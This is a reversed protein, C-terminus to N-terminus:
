RLYGRRRRGRGRVGGVAASVGIDRGARARMRAKLDEVSKLSGGWVALASIGLVLYDPNCTMVRDVAGDLGADILRISEDFSADDTIEINPIHMRALHNTVGPPRMSDYEPQVVTNTSPATVAMKARWGLYDAM